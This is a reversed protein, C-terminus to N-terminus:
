ARRNNPMQTRRFSTFTLSLIQVKGVGPLGSFLVSKLVELDYKEQAIHSKNFTDGHHLCLLFIQSSRGIFSVTRLSIIQLNVLM